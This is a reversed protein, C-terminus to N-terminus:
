FDRMVREIWDLSNPVSSYVTRGASCDTPDGQPLRSVVGIQYRKGDVLKFLPGGSDGHCPKGDIATTLIGPFSNDVVRETGRRLRNDSAGGVSNVGYGFVYTTAGIVSHKTALPVPEANASRNLKILALDHNDRSKTLSVGVVGGGSDAHVSKVRVKLRSYDYKAGDGGDARVCHKATLIWYNDVISGSCHPRGDLSIAAMGRSEPQTGGIIRSDATRDAGGASPTTLAGQPDQAHASTPTLAGIFPLLLAALM